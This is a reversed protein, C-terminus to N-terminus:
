QVAHLCIEPHTKLYDRMVDAKVFVVRSNLMATATSQSLTNALVSTIGVLQGPRASGVHMRREGSNITLEVAGEEVFYAGSCPTGERFLIEDASLKIVEGSEHLFALLATTDSEGNPGSQHSFSM